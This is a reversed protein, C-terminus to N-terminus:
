ARALLGLGIFHLAHQPSPRRLMRAFAAKSRRSFWNVVPGLLSIPKRATKGYHFCGLAHTEIRRRSQADAFNKEISDAFPVSGGAADIILVGGGAVFKKIEQIQAASFTVPATGTLHAIKYTSLKGDGLKVPEVTLGRPM